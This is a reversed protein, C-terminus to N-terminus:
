YDLAQTFDSLLDHWDEVGISLRVLDDGIRAEALEEKSTGSHTTSRPHCVLTEVGGLSVANRAIKLRRLFEFAGPKGDKFELSIIAGPGSCQSEYIRKQEPNEFLEPYIVTNLKPHGHLKHALKRAGECQLKMRAAVTPLRGDLIWCEDPQLINGFMSRRSALRRYHEEQTMLAVGGIMDSFGALYKTASYLAIDCGLDFPSQFVPGLFTNDIMVIPKSPHKRAAEAARRIDTMVLTPNAPTELFVICPNKSERIAKELGDSDDARVPIATVGFPQLFAHILQTTGGYLPTTYVISSEPGAFTFFATMIAAMGSNFVLAHNAGAELPVLHDELIESNPHAFRSYILDPRGDAGAPARGGLVNFAHEAAEPDAFVYTSSRFVAPRASGVSLKPDFGKTLLATRPRLKSEAESKETPLTDKAM